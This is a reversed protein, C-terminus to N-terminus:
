KGALKLQIKLFIIEERLDKNELTLKVRESYHTDESEVWEDLEKGNEPHKVRHVEINLMREKYTAELLSIREEYSKKLFDIHTMYTDQWDKVPTRRITFFEKLITIIPM